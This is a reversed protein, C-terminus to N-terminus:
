YYYYFIHRFIHASFTRSKSSKEAYLSVQSKLLAGATSSKHQKRLERSCRLRQHNAAYLMYHIIKSDFHLKFYTQFTFVFLMWLYKISWFGMQLSHLRKANSQWQRCGVSSPFDCHCKTIKFNTASDHLIMKLKWRKCHYVKSNSEFQYVCLTHIQKGQKLPFNM